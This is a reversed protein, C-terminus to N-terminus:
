KELLNRRRWYILGVVIAVLSILSVVVLPALKIDELPPTALHELVSLNMLWDDIGLIPGLWSLFAVFGFYSWTILGTLRPAVGFLLLYIAVFALLIPLYSLGALTYQWVDLEIDNSMINTTLAMLGGVVVLMWFGSAVVTVVHMGIWKIRSLKASLLQELHGSSEESRLKGLAHIAYGYVMLSTISIMATMFAPLMDGSGGVAVIAQQMSPSDALVRDMQPVLAAITLVMVVIAALWGFFINRHLM